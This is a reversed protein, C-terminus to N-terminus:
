VPDRPHRRGARAGPPTTVPAANNLWVSNSSSNAVSRASPSRRLPARPASALRVGSRATAAAPKTLTPRTTGSPRAHSVAGAGFVAARGQVVHALHGRGYALQGLRREVAVEDAAIKVILADRVDVRQVVDGVL